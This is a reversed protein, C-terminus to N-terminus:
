AMRLRRLMTCPKLESSDAPPKPIGTSRAYFPPCEVDKMRRSVRVVAAEEDVETAIPTAAVEPTGIYGAHLYTEGEEPRTVGPLANTHIDRLQQSYSLHTNDQGRHQEYHQHQLAKRLPSLYRTKELCEITTQGRSALLIHWGTFGGLVLGIIGSIVALMVYNIPMLTDTYQGNSFIESWVWNASVVFCLVCFTTTYILFLLFAKYNRLGVCTALWPCHHDM